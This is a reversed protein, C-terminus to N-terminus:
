KKKIIYNIAKQEIELHTSSRNQLIWKDVEAKYFYIKKGVPKYYPILNNSTLKYIYGKSLGTYDVLEKLSLIEKNSILLNEIRELRSEINEINM